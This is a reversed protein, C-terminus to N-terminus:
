IEEVRDRLRLAVPFVFLWVDRNGGLIGRLIHFVHVRHSRSIRISGSAVDGFHVRVVGSSGMGNRSEDKREDHM